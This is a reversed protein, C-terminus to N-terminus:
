FRPCREDCKEVMGLANQAQAPALDKIAPAIAGYIKKADGFMNDLSGLTNKTKTYANGLFDKMNGFGTKLYFGFKQGFPMIIIYM